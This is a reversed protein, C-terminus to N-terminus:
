TNKEPGSREAQHWGASGSARLFVKGELGRPSKELPAEQATSFSGYVIWSVPQFLRNPGTEQM